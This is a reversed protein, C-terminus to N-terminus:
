LSKLYEVLDNKQEATFPLSPDDRTVVDVLAPYRRYNEALVARVSRGKPHAGRTAAEGVRTRAQNARDDCEALM